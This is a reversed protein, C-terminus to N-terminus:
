CGVATECSNERDRGGEGDARSLGERGRQASHAAPMCVGRSLQPHIRAAAPAVAFGARLGQRAARTTGLISWACQCSSGSRAVRTSCTSQRRAVARSQGTRECACYRPQPTNIDLATATASARRTSPTFGSTRYGSPMSSLSGLARLPPQSDSWVALEWKCSTSPPQRPVCLV